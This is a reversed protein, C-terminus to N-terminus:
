SNLHLAHSSYKSSRTILLFSSSSNLHGLHPAWDKSRMMLLVLKLTVPEAHELAPDLPAPICSRCHELPDHLVYVM